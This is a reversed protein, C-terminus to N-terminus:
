TSKNNKKCASTAACGDELTDVDVFKRFITRRKRGFVDVYQIVGFFLIFAQKSILLDYIPQTMEPLDSRQDLHQGAAIDGLGPKSIAGGFKAKHGNPDAVLEAKTTQRYRHAPTQGANKPQYRIYPKAGVRLNFITPSMAHVYARMQRQGMERTVEVADDAAKVADRTAKLTARLLIVAWVSAGTAAAALIAMLWQAYGDGFFVHDDPCVTNGEQVQQYNSGANAYCRSTHEAEHRGWLGLVSVLAIGTVLFLLIGLAHRDSKHSGLM